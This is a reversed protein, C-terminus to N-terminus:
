EAPTLWELARDMEDFVALKYGRNVAVNEMFKHDALNRTYLLAIRQRTQKHDPDAPVTGTKFTDMTTGLIEAQTMDFLFRQYDREEGINRALQQLLISDGPREHRGTVRVTCIKKVDDFEITYEM